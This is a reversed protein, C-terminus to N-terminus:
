LLSSILTLVNEYGPPLRRILAFSVAFVVTGDYIAELDVLSGGYLVDGTFQDCVGSVDVGISGGGSLGQDEMSPMRTVYLTPESTMRYEIIQVILRIRIPEQESANPLTAKLLAPDLIVRTM